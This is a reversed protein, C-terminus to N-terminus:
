DEEEEEKGIIEENKKRRQKKGELKQQEEGKENEEYNARTRRTWPPCGATAALFGFSRGDNRADTLITKTGIFERKCQQTYPM